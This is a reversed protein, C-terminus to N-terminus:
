LCMCCFILDGTCYTYGAINAVADKGKRPVNHHWEAEM